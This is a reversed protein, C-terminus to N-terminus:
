KKVNKKVEKIFKKLRILMILIIINKNKILTLIMRDIRNKYYSHVEGIEFKNLVLDKFSKTEYKVNKNNQVIDEYHNVIGLVYGQYQKYYQSVINKEKVLCYFKNLIAEYTIWLDAISLYRRSLSEEGLNIYNYYSGYNVYVKNTYSYYRYNFFADEGLNINEDFFINNEIIIEKSYIKNWLVNFHMIYCTNSYYKIYEEINYIRSEEGLLKRNSGGNNIMTYGFVVLDISENKFNNINESLFRNDYYDDSDIFCIYKGTCIKIGLNRASSVGRNETKVVKVRKDNRMIKECIKYTLDNSGDDIIIIEINSYSQLQISAICKEITKEANYAPVIFSVKEEM